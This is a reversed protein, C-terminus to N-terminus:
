GEAEWGQEKLLEPVRDYESLDAKLVRCGEIKHFDEARPSSRHVLVLVEQGDKLAETVLARGIAGTAGTIVIKGM